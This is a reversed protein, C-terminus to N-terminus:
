LNHTLGSNNRELLFIGSHILLSYNNTTEPRALTVFPRGSATAIMSPLTRCKWSFMVDQVTNVALELLLKPTMAASDKKMRLGQTQRAEDVTIWTRLDGPKSVVSLDNVLILEDDCLLVLTAGESDVADIRFIRSFVANKHTVLVARLSDVHCHAHVLM